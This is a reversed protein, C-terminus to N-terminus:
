EELHPCKGNNHARGCNCNWCLPQYLDPKYKQIAERIMKNNSGTKRRHKTGGGKIHDVTMFKPNVESCNPCACKDGYMAFFKQRLGTNYRKARVNNQPRHKSEYVRGIKRKEARHKACHGYPEATRPNIETGEVRCWYCLKVKM